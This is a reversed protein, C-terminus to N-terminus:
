RNSLRGSIWQLTAPIERQWTNFNHGGSDLIISSIRTLNTARVGEIFKLTAKYNSEGIRSSDAPAQACCGAGFATSAQAGGGPAM